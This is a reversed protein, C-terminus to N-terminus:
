EQQLHPALQSVDPVAQHESKGALVAPTMSRHLSLSPYRRSLLPQMCTHKGQTSGTQNQIAKGQTAIHHLRRHKKLALHGLCSNPPVVPTHWKWFHTAELM